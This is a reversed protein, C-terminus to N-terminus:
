TEPPTGGQREKGGGDRRERHHPSRRRRRDRELGNADGRAEVVNEEHGRRGAVRRPEEDDLLPTGVIAAPDLDDLVPGYKGRGEQRGANERGSELLPEESERESGVVGRRPAEVDM